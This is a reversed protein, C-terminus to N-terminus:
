QTQADEQKECWIALVDDYKDYGEYQSLVELTGITGTSEYYRCGPVCNISSLGESWRHIGEPKPTHGFGHAPNKARQYRVEPSYRLEDIFLFIWENVTIDQKIEEQTPLFDKASPHRIFWQKIREGKAIDHQARLRYYLAEARAVEPELAITPENQARLNAIIRQL